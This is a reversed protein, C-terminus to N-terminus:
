RREGRSGCTYSGSPVLHYGRGCPVVHTAWPTGSVPLEALSIYGSADPLPAPPLDFLPGLVVVVGAPTTMNRVM